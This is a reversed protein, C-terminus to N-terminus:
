AVRAIGNQADVSALHRRTRDIHARLEFFLESSHMPVINAARAINELEAHLAQMQASDPVTLLAKDVLRLRRYLRRVRDRILWLFLKPAYNFVPVVIAIVAVLVALFRQAYNTMWFPLYRNLFSPGNRYFDRAGQSMPYEPDTETPFEGVKQFLGPTSHAQLTTQALLDVIAPHVDKRALLVNTTAILATDTVPMKRALDIAGKPLVLRVLYPFIRTLAEAETFNMLRYQPGRLLANLVPSEPSFNRFVADIAGADLNNVVNEPAVSVLTTNDYTIGAVALIKECVARDGSGEAGLGIRKGKLQALDTLTEGTPYFLWFIQYDIRGLSMVDPALRGNSIGGQMFAIQVGSNSHNLLNLNEKAGNTARLQVKIDSAALVGQYRTGLNHYHEGIPSTAIVIQSPPAPILYAMGLWVLGAVCLTAALLRFLHWRTIGLM